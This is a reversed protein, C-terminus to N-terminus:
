KGAQTYQKRDIFPRRLEWGNRWAIRSVVDHTVLYGGPLACLRGDNATALLYPGLRWMEHDRWARTKEVEIDTGLQDYESSKPRKTM